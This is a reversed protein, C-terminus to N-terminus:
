KRIPLANDDWGMRDKAPLDDYSTDSGPDGEPDLTDPMLARGMEAFVVLANHTDFAGQKKMAEFRGEGISGKGGFRQIVQRVFNMTSDWQDGDPGVLIPDMKAKREEDKRFVTYADDQAKEVNPMLSETGHKAVFDALSQADDQSLNMGKALEGLETTDDESFEFGDPLDFATYESPAGTPPEDGVGADDGDAGATAVVSEKDASIDLADGLSEVISDHEPTANPTDNNPAAEPTAEPTAETTQEPLAEASM